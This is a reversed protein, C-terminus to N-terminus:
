CCNIILINFIWTISDNFEMSGLHRALVHKRFADTDHIDFYDTSDSKTVYKTIIKCILAM